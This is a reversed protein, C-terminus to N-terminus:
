LHSQRDSSQDHSYLMTPFILIPNSFSFSFAPLTLLRDQDQDKGRFLESTIISKRGRDLRFRKEVRTQSVGATQGYGSKLQMEFPLKAPQHSGIQDERRNLLLRRRSTQRDVSRCAWYEFAGKGKGMRTENGKVCVPIDPFVRMFVQAGKVVKLKRKLATEASQLQKASLRAPALLRIGYTGQQITTGKLSGGTPFPIRGKHSKRYKVRRPALQSRHRVQSFSFSSPISSTRSSISISSTSFTPIPCRSPFSCSPSTISFRSFASRLTNM